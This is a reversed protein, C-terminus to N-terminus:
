SLGNFSSSVELANKVSANDRHKNNRRINFAWRHSFTGLWCTKCRNRCNFEHSTYIKTLTDNICSIVFCINQICINRLIKSVHINWWYVFSSLSQMCQLNNNIKNSNNWIKVLRFFFYILFTRLPCIFTCQKLCCSPGFHYKITYVSTRDWIVRFLDLKILKVPLQSVFMVSHTTKKKEFSIYFM